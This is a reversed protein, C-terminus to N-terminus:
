LDSDYVKGKLITYRPWGRLTMGAYPSWQAKTKLHADDVTKVRNLDVLVVDDNPPWRFIEQPRTHTLSVIQELSIKKEYHANLLLALYLEISPFGSPASGYPRKKEELLHPAHDTGITDITGDDVAEWLARHDERLPPNVLACTGLRDYAETTLFLHHPTAEAYIPLGATKAKRILDLEERTSVHAIYLRTGYKKALAIAVGVARAAVEANRIMSHLAAKCEGQPGRFDGRNKPYQIAAKCKIKREEILDEDEAHVAVLVDNEAAIRFAKELAVPDKMLLDGTSSGMYIKLGTIQDKVKRIEDLHNQDAGLYLGYRIPIKLQKEIIQKKAQLRQESICSPTNNPMDFVTTVGGAIAARSATEWTEKHEAGPTRFHVHPDILAPLLTLNKRDIIRAEGEIRHDIRRGDITHVDRIEIM